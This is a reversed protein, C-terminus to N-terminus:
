HRNKNQKTKKTKLLFVTIETPIGQHHEYPDSAWPCPLAAGSTAPTQAPTQPGHARALSRSDSTSNAKQKWLM